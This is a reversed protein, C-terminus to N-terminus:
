CSCRTRRTASGVSPRPAPLDHATPRRARDAHLRQARPARGSARDVASARIAPPQRRPRQHRRRALLHPRRPQPLARSAPRVPRRVGGVPIVDEPDVHLVVVDAHTALEHLDNAWTILSGRKTNLVTVEGGTAEAASVLEPPVPGGGQRTVAVSHRRDGDLGMWRWIMRTHGGVSLTRSIVHLVDRIEGGRPRPPRGARTRPAAAQGIDVALQELAGSAFLGPHMWTALNSALGAHVAAQLPDGDYFHRRAEAVCAEFARHNQLIRERAAETSGGETM